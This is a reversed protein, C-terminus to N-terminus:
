IWTKIRALIINLINSGQYNSGVYGALGKDITFEVSAVGPPYGGIIIPVEDEEYDGQIEGAIAVATIKYDGNNFPANNFNYVFYGNNRGTSRYLLNCDDAICEEGNGDVKVYSDGVFKEMYFYVARVDVDNDGNCSASVMFNSNEDLNNISIDPATYGNDYVRDIEGGNREKFRAGYRYTKCAYNPSLIDEGAIDQRFTHRCVNNQCRVIIDRNYRNQNDNPIYTYLKFQYDINNEYGRAWVEIPTNTNKISNPVYIGVNQGCPSDGDGCDPDCEWCNKGYNNTRCGSWDGYNEPCKGDSIYNCVLDEDGCFRAGNCEMLNLDLAYVLPLIAFFFMLCILYVFLKMKDGKLM